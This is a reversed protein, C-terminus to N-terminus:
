SCVIRSAWMYTCHATHSLTADIMAIQAEVFNWLLPARPAGAIPLLTGLQSTLFSLILMSLLFCSALFMELYAWCIIAKNGLAM